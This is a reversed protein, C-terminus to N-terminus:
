VFRTFYKCSSEIGIQGSGHRLIGSGIQCSGHCGAHSGIWCDQFTNPL